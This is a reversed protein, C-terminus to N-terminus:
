GSFDVPYSQTGPKSLSVTKAAYLREYLPIFGYRFDYYKSQLKEPDLTSKCREVLQRGELELEPDELEGLLIDKVQHYVFHFEESELEIAAPQSQPNM